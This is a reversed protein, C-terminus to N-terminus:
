GESQQSGNFLLELNKCVLLRNFLARLCLLLVLGLHRLWDRLDLHHPNWGLFVDVLGHSWSLLMGLQSWSLVM